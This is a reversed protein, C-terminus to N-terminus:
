NVTVLTDGLITVNVTCTATVSPDDISKAYVYYTGEPTGPTAYLNANQGSADPRVGVAPSSSSWTVGHDNGAAMSVHASVSSSVYGSDPTGTDPPANLNLLTSSLNIGNVKGIVVPGVMPVGDVSVALNWPKPASPMRFDLSSSAVRTIIAPVGSISISPTAAWDQLLNSGNLTVVGGPAVPVVSYYGTVKPVFAPILDLDCRTHAYQIVQVATNGYATFMGSPNIAAADLTVWGAPVVLSVTALTGPKLDIRRRLGSPLAANPHVNVIVYDTSLPITQTGYASHRRSSSVALDLSGSPEGLGASGPSDIAALRSVNCASLLSGAVLLVLATTTPIIRAYMM